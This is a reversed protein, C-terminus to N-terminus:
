HGTKSSREAQPPPSPFFRNPSEELADELHHPTGAPQIGTVELLAPAPKRGVQTWIRPPNEAPISVVVAQEIINSTQDEEADPATSQHKNEQGAM